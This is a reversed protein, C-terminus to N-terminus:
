GATRRTGLARRMVPRGPKRVGERYGLLGTVEGADVLSKMERRNAGRAVSCGPARFVAEFDVWRAPTLPKVDLKM